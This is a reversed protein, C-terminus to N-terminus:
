FFAQDFGVNLPHDQERVSGYYGVATREPRGGGEAEIRDWIRQDKPGM